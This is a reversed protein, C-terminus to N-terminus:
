SRTWNGHLPGEPFRRLIAEVERESLEPYHQWLKLVGAAHDRIITHEAGPAFLYISRIAAEIIPNGDFEDGMSPIPYDSV